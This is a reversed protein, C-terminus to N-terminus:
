EEKHSLLIGNHIYVVDQKDMWQLPVNLSTEVVPFNSMEKFIAKKRWMPTQTYGVSVWVKTPDKSWSPKHHVLVVSIPDIQESNMLLM